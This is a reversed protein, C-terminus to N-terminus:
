VVLNFMLASIENTALILYQFHLLIMGLNSFIKAPM